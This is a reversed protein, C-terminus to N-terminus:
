VCQHRVEICLDRSLATALVWSLNERQLMAIRLKAGPWEQCHRAAYRRSRRFQSAHQFRPGLLTSDTRPSPNPLRLWRTDIAAYKPTRGEFGCGDTAAQTEGCASLSWCTARRTTWLWQFCPSWLFRPRIWVCGEFPLTRSWLELLVIGFSYVDVRENYM